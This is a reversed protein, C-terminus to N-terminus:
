DNGTLISTMGSVIFFGFILPGFCLNLLFVWRSALVRGKGALRITYVVSALLSVIIGIELVAHTNLFARRGLFEAIGYGTLTLTLGLPPFRGTFRQFSFASM